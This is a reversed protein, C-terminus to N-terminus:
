AGRVLQIRRLREGDDVGSPVALAIQLRRLSRKVGAKRLFASLMAGFLTSNTVVGRRIPRQLQFKLPMRGRGSDAEEGVFEVRGTGTRITLVSPENLVIGRGNMYLLTNATGADIGVRRSGFGIM